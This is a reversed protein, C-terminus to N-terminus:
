NARMEDIMKSIVAKLHNTVAAYNDDNNNEAGADRTTEILDKHSTEVVGASTPQESRIDRTYFPEGVRM